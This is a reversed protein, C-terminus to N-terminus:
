KNNYYALYKDHKVNLKLTTIAFFKTIFRVVFFTKWIFSRFCPDLGHFFGVFEVTNFGLLTTQSFNSILTISAKKNIQEGKIQKVIKM